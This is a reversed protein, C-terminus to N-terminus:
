VNRMGQARLKKHVEKFFDYYADWTKPADEINYGAKEIIPRWVHNPRVACTFTTKYVYTAAFCPNEQGGQCEGEQSHNSYFQRWGKGLYRLM